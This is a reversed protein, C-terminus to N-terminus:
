PSKTDSPIDIRNPPEAFSHMVVKSPYLRTDQKRMEIAANRLSLNLAERDMLENNEWGAFLFGKSRPGRETMRLEFISANPFRPVEHYWRHSYNMWVKVFCKMTIGHTFLVHTNEAWDMHSAKLENVFPVLRTAVQSPSEGGLMQFFYKGKKRENNMHEFILSEIEGMQNAEDEARKWEQWKKGRFMGFNMEVLAESEIIDTCHQAIKPSQLIQSATQQTRLFPSSWLRFPIGEHLADELELRLRKCQEIGNESLEVAHDGVTDYISPDVNSISEAHRVLLIRTSFLRRAVLRSM